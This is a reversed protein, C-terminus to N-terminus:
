NSHNLGLMLDCWKRQAHLEEEAKEVQLTEVYIDLESLKIFEKRELPFPVIIILSGVYSSDLVFFM